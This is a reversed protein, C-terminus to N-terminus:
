DGKRLKMRINRKVERMKGRDNESNVNENQKKTANKVLSFILPTILFSLALLLFPWFNAALSLGSELVDKPNIGTNGELNPLDVAPVTENLNATGYVGVTSNYGSVSVALKDGIMLNNVTIEKATTQLNLTTTTGTDSAAFDSMGVAATQQHTITIDVQYREALPEEDWAFKLSNTKKEITRLNTIKGYETPTASVPSSQNSEQGKTNVASVTFNYNTGNNLGTVTYSTGSVPSSTIKVGNKYVNYGQITGTASSVHNWSLEVQKDGTNAKLGTPASPPGTTTSTVLVGNSINGSSDVSQLLYTYTANPTLGTDLYDTDTVQTTYILTSGRFIKVSIFDTDSPNTWNLRISTDSVVAATVESVEGAPTNDTAIVAFSVGQSENNSTDVTKLTYSYQKGNTLGTDIYNNTGKPISVIFINDRYVNVQKFDPDNPPTWSLGVSTSSLGKTVINNVEAPPTTDIPDSFMQIEGVALLSAGNNATVNLRYYLFPKSNNFSYFRTEGGYGWNTESNRTDLTTWTVGDNSGEFSFNKPSRTPYNPMDSVSYRNVIVNSPFKLKVWGTPQNDTVWVNNLNAESNDFNAYNYYGPYTSSASVVYGNQSSSGLAPVLDSSDPVFLGTYAFAVLNGFLINFLLISSIFISIKKIKM